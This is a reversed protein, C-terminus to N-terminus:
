DRNKGRSSAFKRPAARERGRLQGPEVAQESGRSKLGAKSGSFLAELTGDSTCLLQKYLTAENEILDSVYKRQNKNEGALGLLHHGLSAAKPSAKELVLTITDSVIRAKSQRKDPALAGSESRQMLLFSYALERHELETLADLAKLFAPPRWNHRFWCWDKRGEALPCGESHLCPGLINAQRALPSELFEDRIRVLTRSQDEQGPELWLCLGSPSLRAFSERAWKKQLAPPLENLANAVLVVDFTGQKANPIDSAYEVEVPTSLCTKFVDQGFEVGEATRDVAFIHIPPLTQKNEIALEQLLAIVGMSASMPGCGLDLIRLQKLKLLPLLTTKGYRVLSGKTRELNPLLFSFIYAQLLDQDSMYDADRKDRDTTFGRWLTKTSRALAKVLKPDKAFGDFSNQLLETLSDQFSTQSRPM